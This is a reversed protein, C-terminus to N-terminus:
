SVRDPTLAGTPDFALPEWASVIKLRQNAEIESRLAESAYFRELHLTNLIRTLRVDAPEVAGCTLFAWDVAERDTAGIMPIRGNEPANATLCNIYTPQRDMKDVLRQTTFDALGIGIASGYTRASLDRVVIRTVHPSALAPESLNMRRGVVNTDMGTGSIEKGMEDVILVDLREFPLRPMIQKARELLARDTAEFDHPWSAVVAATEDYANEIVGLGFLLPARRIVERGVSAIVTAYSLLIAHRHATLAGLHKGLGITLMKMLGSEVPGSYDTHAKVRNVVVIGDAGAALRDMHVPIGEPTRGIQVTEMSARIPCGVAEETVGLTHLVHLQGDATAGGHSGMSPVIFPEAGARKLEGAVTALITPIGNIGRSGATLAIAMGPRVKKAVDLRAMEDRIAEPVNDVRPTEIHQEVLAVHPHTIDFPLFM